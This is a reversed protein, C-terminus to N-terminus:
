VSGIEYSILTPCSQIASPVPKIQEVQSVTRKEKDMKDKIFNYYYKNVQVFFESTCLLFDHEPSM